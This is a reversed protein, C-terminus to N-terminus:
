CPPEIQSTAAQRAQDTCAASLVPRRQNGPGHLIRFARESFLPSAYLATMVIVTALTAELSTLAIAVPTAILWLWAHVGGAAATTCIRATGPRRHRSSESAASMGDPHSDPARTRSPERVPGSSASYKRLRPVTM